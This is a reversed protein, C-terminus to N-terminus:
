ACRDNGNTPQISAIKNSGEANTVEVDLSSKFESGIPRVPEGASGTTTVASSDACVAFRITYNGEEHVFEVLEGNFFTTDGTVTWDDKAADQKINEVDQQWSETALVALRGDDYGLNVVEAATRLYTDLTAVGVELAEDDTMRTPEPEAIATTQPPWPTPTATEVPADAACGSLGVLLLAAVSVVFGRRM